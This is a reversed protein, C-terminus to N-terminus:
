VNTEMRAPNPYVDFRVLKTEVSFAVDDMLPPAHHPRKVVVRAARARAVELLALADSEEGVLRRLIQLPRKPLASSRRPPPYMPDLYIGVNSEEIAGVRMAAEGWEFCLRAAVAPSVAGTREAHAWASALLAFVVPHREIGRVRYGADALRYADSGLGATADLIWEIKPGFARHLPLRTGAKAAGARDPPFRASLGRRDFEGPPRLELGERGEILIFADREPLVHEVREIGLTELIAGQQPSSTVALVVPAASGNERTM